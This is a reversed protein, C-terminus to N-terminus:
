ENEECAKEYLFCRVFQGKKIEIIPPKYKNCKGKISFECRPEFECGNPISFADPVMGKITDLYKKSTKNPISKLLAKTYPHKPNDFIDFVTGSEVIKGLYMVIVEDAMEAIVALDHTIILISMEYKKQLDKLLKIIQAQLTVDIATTPEDAILLKPNCSLAMAIMVRQRMGGSLQFTYDNIKKEPSPIGVNKLLTIAKKRAEKKTLMSNHIRIAEIIQSGVTHIPSLATMPEQFIYGIEKGRIERIIKGKPDLKALDIIEKENKYFLVEGDIIKGPWPMIQIISQATVTKGSGSEGVIGVTKQKEIFFNIGDVAKVTGQDTEFYTKLNKVELLKNNM